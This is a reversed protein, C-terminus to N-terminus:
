PKTMLASMFQEIIRRILLPMCLEVVLFASALASGTLFAPWYPMCYAMMARFPSKGTLSIRASEAM